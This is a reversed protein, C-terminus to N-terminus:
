IGSLTNIMYEELFGAILLIVIVIGMEIATSKILSKQNIRKVLVIIIHISRSMAISYAIIEMLGFPSFYLISLPVTDVLGPAMTLIAAFGFGTSWATYTGWFIGFGPVFMPLAVVSNNLFIGIGDMTNTTSLFEQVFANADDSSIEYMTGLQFSLSFLGLFICFSITRTKLM